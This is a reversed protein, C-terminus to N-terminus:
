DASISSPYSGAAPTCSGCIRLARVALQAAGAVARGAARGVADQDGLRDSFLAESRQARRSLNINAAIQGGGLQGRDDAVVVAQDDAAARADIGVHNRGGMAQAHDPPGPRPDVVDIDVRGRLAANQHEVDGAAVSNRGGLQRHPQQQREAPMQRCGVRTQAGPGPLSLLKDARLQATLRGPHHPKPLDTRRDRPPQLPELHTHEGEVREHGGFAGDRQAHLQDLEILQERVTVGDRQM